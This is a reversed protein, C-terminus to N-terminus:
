TGAGEVCQMVLYQRNEWPLVSQVDLLRGRWSLRLAGDLGSRYRITIEHRTEDQLQGAEKAESGSVPKVRAWVTAVATWTQEGGGAGDGTLSLQQITVRERMKGGLNM